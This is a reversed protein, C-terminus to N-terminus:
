KKLTEDENLDFLYAGECETLLDFKQLLIQGFQPEFIFAQAFL